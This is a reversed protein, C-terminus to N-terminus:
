FSNIQDRDRIMQAGPHTEIGEFGDWDCAEAGFKWLWCTARPEDEWIQGGLVFLSVSLFFPGALFTLFNRIM